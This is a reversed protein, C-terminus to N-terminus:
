VKLSYVTKIRTIARPPSLSGPPRLFRQTQVSFPQLGLEKQPSARVCTKWKAKFSLMVSFLFLM